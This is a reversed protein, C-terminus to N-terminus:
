WEGVDSIEGDKVCIVPQGEIAIMMTPRLDSTVDESGCEPCPRCPSQGVTQADDEILFRRKCLRCQAYIIM